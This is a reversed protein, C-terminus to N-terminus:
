KSVSTDGQLRDVLGARRRKEESALLAIKRHDVKERFSADITFSALVADRGEVHGAIPTMEIHDSEQGNLPTEVRARDVPM